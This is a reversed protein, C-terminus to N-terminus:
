QVGPSVVPIVPVRNDTAQRYRRWLDIEDHVVDTTGPYGIFDRTPGLSPVPDGYYLTYATVADFQEIRSAQPTTTLM